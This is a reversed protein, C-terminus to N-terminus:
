NELSLYLSKLILDLDTKLKHSSFLPAMHRNLKFTQNYSLAPTFNSNTEYYLGQPKLYVKGNEIVFSNDLVFMRRKLNNLTKVLFPPPTSFKMKGKKIMKLFKKKKSLSDCPFM